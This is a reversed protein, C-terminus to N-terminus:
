QTFYFLHILLVSIINCQRTFGPRPMASFLCHNRYFRLFICWSEDWLVITVYWIRYLFFFFFLSIVLFHFTLCGQLILKLLKGLRISIQRSTNVRRHCPPGIRVLPRRYKAGKPILLSFLMSEFPIPWVRARKSIESWLESGRVQEQVRRRLNKAAWNSWWGMTPRDGGFVTYVRALGQLPFPAEQLGNCFTSWSDILRM